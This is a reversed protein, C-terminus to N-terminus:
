DPEHNMDFLFAEERGSKEFTHCCRVRRKSFSVAINRDVSSSEELVCLSIYRPILIGIKGMSKLFTAYM